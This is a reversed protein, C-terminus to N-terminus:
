SQSVASFVSLKFQTRALRNAAPIGHLWRVSLFNKITRNCEPIGSASLVCASLEM